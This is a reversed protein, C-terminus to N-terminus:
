GTQTNLDWPLNVHFDKEFDLCMREAAIWVKPARDLMCETASSFRMRCDTVIKGGLQEAAADNLTACYLVSQAGALADRFMVAAVLRVGSGFWGPLNRQLGSRTPGPNVAMSIVGREITTASSDHVSRRHLEV